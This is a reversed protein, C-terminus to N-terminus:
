TSITNIRLLYSNKIMYSLFYRNEDHPHVRMVFVRYDLTSDMENIVDENEGGLVDEVVINPSSPSYALRLKKLQLSVVPILVRKNLLVYFKRPQSLDRTIYDLFWPLAFLSDLKMNKKRLMTKITESSLLEIV